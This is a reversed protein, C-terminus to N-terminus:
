MHKSPIFRMINAIPPPIISENFSQLFRKFLPGVIKVCNEKKLFNFSGKEISEQTKLLRANGGAERFFDKQKVCHQKM